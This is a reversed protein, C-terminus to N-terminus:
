NRDAILEALMAEIRDLREALSKQISRAALM